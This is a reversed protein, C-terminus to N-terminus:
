RSSGSVKIKGSSKNVAEIVKETGHGEADPALRHIMQACLLFAPPMLLFYYSYKGTADTSWGLLRLFLAGGAGAIVGIVIALLVWKVVSLILISHETIRNKM